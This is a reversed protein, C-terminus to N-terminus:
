RSGQSLLRQDVRFVGLNVLAPGIDQLAQIILLHAEQEGIIPSCFYQCTAILATFGELLETRSLRDLHSRDVIQLYGSPAIMLSAFAPFASSCDDLIDQLVSMAELPGVLHAVALSVRRTAEVLMQWEWPAILQKADHAAMIINGEIVRPLDIKPSAVVVGYRHLHLLVDEFLQEHEDNLTTERTTVGRDFRVFGNRWHQLEGLVQRVDGRSGVIHVLKGARYYLHVIGMRETNRLSLRGFARVRQVHRVIHALENLSGQWSSGFAPNIQSM